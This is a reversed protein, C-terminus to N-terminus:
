LANYGAEAMRACRAVWKVRCFLIGHLRWREFSVQTSAFHAYILHGRRRRRGGASVRAARRPCGRAPGRNTVGRARKETSYNQEKWKIKM